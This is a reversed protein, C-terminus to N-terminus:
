APQSKYAMCINVLGCKECLPKRAKCVYRGHLILWHHARPLIDKDFGAELQKEAQLPTKANKTLGIRASVRFVHTDVPMVKAGYLVSAVVNATKPGVGPLKQLDEVTEPTKGGFDEVIMKAIGLVDKTKSNPYSVSKLYPFVTEFDANYVSEADPFDKFFVKTVQNVRKDTCQASLRVAVILQFPNEYHLETEATPMALSFYDTVAQYLANMELTFDM